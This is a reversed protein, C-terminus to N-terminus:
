LRRAPRRVMDLPTKGWRDPRGFDGGHKHLLIAADILGEVCAVHVATRRESLSGVCNPSAGFELLQRLYDLEGRETAQCLEGGASPRVVPGRRGGYHEKPRSADCDELGLRGGARYIDYAVTSHGHRCAELLPSYGFADIVNPDAKWKLLEQPQSHLATANM